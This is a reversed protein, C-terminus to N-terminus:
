ETTHGLDLVIRCKSPLRRLAFPKLAGPHWGAPGLAALKVARRKPSAAPKPPTVHKPSKGHKSSKAQKESGKFVDSLWGADSIEIPLLAMAALAVIITRRRPWFGSARSGLVCIFECRKM